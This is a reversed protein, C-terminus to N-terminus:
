QFVSPYKHRSVTTSVSGPWSLRMTWAHNAEYKESIDLRIWVDPHLDSVHLRLDGSATLIRRPHDAELGEPETDCGEGVLGM